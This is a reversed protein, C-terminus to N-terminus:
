KGVFFYFFFFININIIIKINSSSILIIIIIIIIMSQQSPQYSCTKFPHVSLEVLSVYNHMFQRVRFM